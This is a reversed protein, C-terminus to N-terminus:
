ADAPLLTFHGGQLPRVARFHREDFTLLRRTGFRRALVVVSADALGINLDRHRRAVQEALGLEHGELCEVRFTTGALDGLFALEQDVGLSRMLLHDAEAAVFASVILDGREDRLLDVVAAHHPDRRDAQAVLPGADVILTM